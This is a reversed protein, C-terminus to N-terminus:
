GSVRAVRMRDLATKRGDVGKTRQRQIFATDANNLLVHLHPCTHKFEDALRRVEQQSSVDALLFDVNNTGSSARIAQVVQATKPPTAGVIVVTAGM